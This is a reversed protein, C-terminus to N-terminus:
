GEFCRSNSFPREFNAGKEECIGIVVLVLFLTISYQIGKEVSQLSITLTLKLLWNRM